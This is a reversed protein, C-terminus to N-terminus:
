VEEVDVQFEKGAAAAVVGSTVWCVPYGQATIPPKLPLSGDAQEWGVKAMAPMGSGQKREVQATVVTPAMIIDNSNATVSSAINAPKEPSPGGVHRRRWVWCTAGCCLGVVVVLLISVWFGSAGLIQDSWSTSHTTLAESHEAAFLMALTTTPTLTLTPALTPAQHQRIFSIGSSWVIDGNAQVQGRDLYSQYYVTDGSVHAITASLVDDRYSITAVCGDQSVVLPFEADDPLATLRM